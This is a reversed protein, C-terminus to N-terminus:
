NYLNSMLSPYKAVEIFNFRNLPKNLYFKSNLYAQMFDQNNQIERAVEASVNFYRFFSVVGEVNLKSIEVRIKENLYGQNVRSYNIFFDNPVLYPLILYDYITDYGLPANKGALINDLKISLENLYGEYNIDQAFDEAKLHFVDKLIRPLLTVNNTIRQKIIFLFKNLIIKEKLIVYSSNNYTKIIDIIQNLDYADVARLLEKIIQERTM